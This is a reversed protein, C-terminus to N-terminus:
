KRILIIEDSKTRYAPLTLYTQDTLPKGTTLAIVAFM